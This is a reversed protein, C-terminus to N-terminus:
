LLVLASCQFFLLPFCMAIGQKSIKYELDGRAVKGTGAVTVLEPLRPQWEALSPTSRVYELRGM